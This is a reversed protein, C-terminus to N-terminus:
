AKLAAQSELAEKRAAETSMLFRGPFSAPCHSEGQAGFISQSTRTRPDWQVEMGEANQFYEEPRDSTPCLGLCM